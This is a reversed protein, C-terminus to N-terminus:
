KKPKVDIELKVSDSFDAKEKPSILNGVHDIASTVSNVGPEIVDKNWAKGVGRLNDGGANTTHDRASQGLNKNEIEKRVSDFESANPAAPADPAGRQVRSRILDQSDPAANGSVGGTNHGRRGNLWERMEAVEPKGAAASAPAGARHAHAPAAPLGDQAPAHGQGTSVQPTAAPLPAQTAAGTGGGEVRRRASDAAGQSYIGEPPQRLGKNTDPQMDTSLPHGSAPALADSAIKAAAASDKSDLALFQKLATRELGDVRTGSLFGSTEIQRDADSLRKDWDEVEGASGNQRLDRDHVSLSDVKGSQVLKSALNNYDLSQAHGASVKLAASESYQDSASKVRSLQSQYQETHAKMTESSFLSEDAHQNSYDKAQRFEDSNAHDNMWANTAKTALERNRTADTLGSASLNAEVGAHVEYPTLLGLLTGKVGLGGGVNTAIGSAIARKETDSGGVSDGIQRGVSAAYRDASSSSHSLADTISSSDRTTHGSRQATQLMQGQTQTVQSSASSLASSASQMGREAGSALNYTPQQVGFKSGGTAPNYQFASSAQMAPSMAVADPSISKPQVSASVGGTMRGALNTAAYAGGYVLMLSLAPVSAALMGGTSVWTELTKYVQDHMVMAAIDSGNKAAHTALTNMARTAVVTIYMNCVAMVPGWLSVWVVLQLYRAALSMGVPGLTLLFAAVPSTAVTFTEVFAMIPRAVQRFLGEEGAWQTQLQEIGTRTIVAAPGDRLYSAMLANFMYTQADTSTVGLAQIANHIKDQATTAPDDIELLGKMYADWLPAFDGGRVYKDIEVYAQECSMQVDAVYGPLAVIIDRNIFTTKMAAWTDPGKLLGQRTVEHVGYTLDLDFQVCTAIYNNLTRGLDGNLTPDSGATGSGIYRLKLLTKLSDVYGHQLMSSEGPISFAAEFTQTLRFGITSVLSMPMAVGLPVNAVTRVQATYADQVSVTVKPWFMIMYVILATLVHHMEFKQTALYRLGALFGGLIFGSKVLSKIDGGNFIMAVGQFANYLMEADGISYVPYVM